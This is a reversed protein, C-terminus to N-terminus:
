TLGLSTLGLAEIADRTRPARNPDDALDDVLRQLDEPEDVDYWPPLITLHGDTQGARTLTQSFVRGHSYQMDEFLQPYFANMGLLYYGGDTSPGLSISAPARLATFAQKVFASPLTPHDTGIIVARRYDALTDAFAHRMREGLTAGVQAFQAVRAPVELQPAGNGPPSLYLRVDAELTLYQDLADLLFARYLKAAEKPSLVPTLRTKVCGPQPHKAFVILANDM